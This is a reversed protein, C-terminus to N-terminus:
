KITTNSIRASYRDSFKGKTVSLQIIQSFNFILSNTVIINIGTSTTVYGFIAKCYEENLDSFNM